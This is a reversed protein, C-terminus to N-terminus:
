HHNETEARDERTTTKRPGCCKEQIKLYAPVIFLKVILFCMACLELCLSAFLLTRFIVEPRKAIPSQVNKIYYSTQGISITLTKSLAVASTAYRDADIFMENMDYTFTPFWIGEFTSDGDFLPETENIVKTLEMKITAKHGLTASSDSFIARNFNLEQLAYADTVKGHGFLGLRVGGVLQIDDLFARVTIKHQPLLARISVTGNVVNCTMNSLPYTFPGVVKLISVKLCALATNVLDLQLIFTQQDLANLIPKEVESAPVALAKMSSEFKANRISEDCAFSSPGVKEAPYQPLYSIAFRYAM